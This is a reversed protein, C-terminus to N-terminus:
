TLIRVAIANTRPMLSNSSLAFSVELQFTDPDAGRKLMIEGSGRWARGENKGEEVVTEEFVPM